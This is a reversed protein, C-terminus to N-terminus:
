RADELGVQVALAEADGLPEHSTVIWAADRRRAADALWDQVFRISTRDLAALPEDLLVAPSGVVLAAALSVKRSSGTSLQDIRKGLHPALGLADLVVPVRARDLTPYLGAVFEIYEQPRLHGFAPAGPACWFVRRRYGQPDAQADVGACRLSGGAPSLAGGLLQLLTSKGCGNGGRVWTLGSHFSFSWDTFLWRGPWGFHLGQALLAAARSM